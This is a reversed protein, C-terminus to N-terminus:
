WRFRGSNWEAASVSLQLLQLFTWLPLELGEMVSSPLLVPGFAKDAIREPIPTSVVKKLSFEKLQLGNRWKHWIFGRKKTQKNIWLFSTCSSVPLGYIRSLFSSLDKDRYFKFFLNPQLLLFSHIFTSAPAPQHCSPTATTPMFVRVSLFIGKFSESDVQSSFLSSPLCSKLSRLGSWKKLRYTVPVGTMQGPGGHKFRAAYWSPHSIPFAVLIPLSRSVVWTLVELRKFTELKSVQCSYQPVELIM